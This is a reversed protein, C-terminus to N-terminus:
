AEKNNNQLLENQQYHFNYIKMETNTDGSYLNGIDINENIGDNKLIDNIQYNQKLYTINKYLKENIDKKLVAIIKKRDDTVDRIDKKLVTNPVYMKFESDKVFGMCANVNGIIKDTQLLISFSSFTGIMSAMKDIKMLQSLIELKYYTTDDKVKLKSEDIGGERLLMYFKYSNILENGKDYAQVGTLHYFSTIPFFMEEKGISRDKNEYIFMLKKNRLNKDFEKQCSSIINIIEKKALFERM